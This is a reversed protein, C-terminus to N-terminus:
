DEDPDYEPDDEPDEEPEEEPEEEKLEEKPDEMEQDEEPGEEEPEVIEGEESWNAGEASYVPSHPNEELKPDKANIMVRDKPNTTGKEFAADMMITVIGRDISMPCWATEVWM